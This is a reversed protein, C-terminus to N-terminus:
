KVHEDGKKTNSLCDRSEKVLGCFILYPMLARADKLGAILAIM